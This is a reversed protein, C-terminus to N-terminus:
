GMLEHIPWQHQEAARRMESDPYVATPYGAAMLFPIDSQSDAYAACGALPLELSHTEFYRQVYIAKRSGSCTEGAVRGTCYGNHIEVPTGLGADAGLYLALGRVIPEFMTSVLLVPHGATKHQKLIRVVDSRLGPILRNQVIENCLADGEEAQWGRMLDAMYHVWRSRFRAQDAIHGKVLAYMPLTKLYLQARRAFSINPSYILVDWFDGGTTLTGDIDFLAARIGQDLHNDM